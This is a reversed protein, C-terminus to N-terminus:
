RVEDPSVEGMQKAWTRIFHDFHLRLTALDLLELRRLDRLSYLSITPEIAQGLPNEIDFAVSFKYLFPSTNKEDQQEKEVVRYIVRKNMSTYENQKGVYVVLDGVNLTIPQIWRPKM